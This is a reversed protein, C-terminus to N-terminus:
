WATYVLMHEIRDDDLWEPDTKVFAELALNMQSLQWEVESSDEDNEIERLAKKNNRYVYKWYSCCDNGDAFIKIWKNDLIREVEDSWNGSLLYNCAQLMLTATNKDIVHQSGSWTYAQMSWEDKLCTFSSNFNWTLLEDLYSNDERLIKLYNARRGAISYDRVDKWSKTQEDYVSEKIGIKPDLVLPLDAALEEDTKSTLGNEKGEQVYRKVIDAIEEKSAATKYKRYLTFYSGSSM